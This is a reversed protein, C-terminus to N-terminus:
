INQIKENYEELLEKDVLHLYESNNQKRSKRILFFQVISSPNEIWPFISIDLKILTILFSDKLRNLADLHKQNKYDFFSAFKKVLFDKEKSDIDSYKKSENIYHVALEPSHNWIIQFLVEAYDLRKEKLNDFLADEIADLPINKLSSKKLYALCLKPYKYLSKILTPVMHHDVRLLVKLIGKEGGHMNKFYEWGEQDKNFLAHLIKDTLSKFSNGRVTNSVNSVRKIPVISLKSFFVAQLPESRHIISRGEIDVAGSYDLVSRFIFNWRNPRINKATVDWESAACRTVNWIFGSYSQSSAKKEALSVFDKFGNSTKLEKEYYLGMKILDRDYKNKTYSEDSLYLLNRSKARFLWFYQSDSVFPFKGKLSTDEPDIASRYFKLGEKLPYCYIGNPTNYKSSPNIGIKDVWTFSLFINPDDLYDKLEEYISLKKNLEPNKRKAIVIKM